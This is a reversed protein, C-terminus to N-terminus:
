AATAAVPGAEARDKGPTHPALTYPLLICACKEGRMQTQIQDILARGIAQASATVFTVPLPCLMELELDKHLVVKLEDPVRVGRELMATLVGRSALDPCVVLGDPRQAQEWLRHFRNYGFFEHKADDVSGDVFCLTQWEERVHLHLDKAKRYFFQAFTESQRDPHGEWTREDKRVPMILAVSHCGQKALQGLSLETFQTMDTGVGNSVNTMHATPVPLKRLWALHRRDILSATLVAQIARTEAARVLEPWPEAQEADPRPDVWAQAQGGTEEIVQKVAHHVARQFAYRPAHWIDGAFYIAIRQLKPEVPQVFTGAGRCRVLLGEKVLPALALQVTRPFTGWRATLEQTSPLKSRPELRGTRIEQRIYDTIQQQIGKHRQLQFDALM